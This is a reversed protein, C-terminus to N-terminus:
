TTKVTILEVLLRAFENFTVILDVVKLLVWVVDELGHPPHENSELVLDGTGGM